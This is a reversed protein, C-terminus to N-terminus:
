ILNRDALVQQYGCYHRPKLVTYPIFEWTPCGKSPREKLRQEVSQRQLEELTIQNGGRLLVSADVSHNEKEMLKMHDTFKTKTIGLM